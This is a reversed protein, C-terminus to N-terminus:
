KTGQESIHKRLKSDQEKRTDSTDILEKTKMQSDEKRVDQTVFRNGQRERETGILRRERDTRKDANNTM